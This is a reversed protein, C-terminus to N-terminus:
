VHDNNVWKIWSPKIGKSLGIARVDNSNGLLDIIRIAYTGGNNQFVALNNGDPSIAADYVTPLTGFEKAPPAAYATAWLILNLLLVAFTRM